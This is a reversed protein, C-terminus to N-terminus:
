VHKGVFLSATSLMDFCKSVLVLTMFATMKLAATGTMKLLHTV